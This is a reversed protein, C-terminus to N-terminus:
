DSRGYTRNLTAFQDALAASTDDPLMRWGWNGDVVGPWNMRAERGLGLLDQMPVIALCACSALALRALEHHIAQPERGLYSVVFQRVEASAEEEWWGRATNNDHTGTYVIQARRHLYPVFQSRPAPNFGFQLIAMGPLGLAERLANVEATIDGLDEAVLPLSGLAQRLATFLAEGPGPRWSGSQATEAGAPVSWYAVFGRFHDLRLLDLERLAHRVRDVWWDFGTDALREWDFLPNGWLQGEANFYDPPVGSIASPRGDEDLQFLERHAWVDVSDHLVYIPVDGFLRVGRSTAHARLRQWQGALLFQVFAHWDISERQSEALAALAAPERAALAKPWECWSRGPHLARAAAYLAWDDLWGREAQRFREFATRLEPRPNENWSAWAARLLARKRETVAAFDVQAGSPLEARKLVAEDVLGDAALLEPSILNPNLAFASAASYPSNGAAPPHLPLVQWYRMGARALWDIWAHAAPGLDGCGFRGPLSTPHLLVGAARQDILQGGNGSAALDM